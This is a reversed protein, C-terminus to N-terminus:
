PAVLVDHTRGAALLSRGGEGSFGAVGVCWCRFEIFLLALWDCVSMIFLRMYEARSVTDRKAVSTM